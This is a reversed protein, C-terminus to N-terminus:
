SADEDEDEWEFPFAGGNVVKIGVQGLYQVNECVEWSAHERYSGVLVVFDRGPMMNNLGSSDYVMRYQQPMLRYFKAWANSEQLSGGLIFPNFHELLEKIQPMPALPLPGGNEEPDGVPVGDDSMITASVAEVEADDVVAEVDDPSPIAALTEEAQTIPDPVKEDAM